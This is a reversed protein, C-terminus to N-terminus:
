VHARTGAPQRARGSPATEGEAIFLQLGAATPCYDRGELRVVSQVTAEPPRPGLGRDPARGTVGDVTTGRVRPRLIVMAPRDNRLLLATTTSNTSAHPKDASMPVRACTPWFMLTM